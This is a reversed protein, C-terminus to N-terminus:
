TARGRGRRAPLHPQRNTLLHKTCSTNTARGRRAECTPRPLGVRGMWGCRCGCGCACACGAPWGRGICHTSSAPARPGRRPCRSARRRRRRRGVAGPSWWSSSTWTWSCRSRGHWPWSCRPRLGFRGCCSSAAEELVRRRPLDPSSCRRHRFTYVLSPGGALRRRQALRPFTEPSLTLDAPPLVGRRCKLASPDCHRELSSPVQRVKHTQSLNQTFPLSLQGRNPPYRLRSTLHLVLGARRAAERWYPPRCRRRRRASRACTTWSRSARLSTHGGAVM